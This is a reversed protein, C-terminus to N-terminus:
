GPSPPARQTSRPPGRSWSSPVQRLSTPPLSEGDTRRDHRGDSTSVSTNGTTHNGRPPSAQSWTRTNRDKDRGKNCMLCRSPRREWGEMRMISQHAGLHPVLVSTRPSPSLGGRGPPPVVRRALGDSRGSLWCFPSITRRMPAAVCRTVTTESVRLSQTISFDCLM